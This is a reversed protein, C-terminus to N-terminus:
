QKPANELVFEVLADCHFFGEWMNHGQGAPVVLEMKGGLKRYRDAVTQSNADLPVVKDVDGHIHFIPVGAKALSELRDIPNHETLKEKLEAETMEYAGKARGIGPYSALNCVPYIGAICAVKDPNEAAWNYLMLGGRSRALLSAKPAFKHESTTLHKYLDNYIKRGQPSGYSEGVDVGAIAIGADLFQDIMWGEHKENPLSKDFTPAYMVWPMPTKRKDADPLIMFAPREAVVFRQWDYKADQGSASSAVVLFLFLTIARM